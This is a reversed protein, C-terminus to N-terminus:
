RRAGAQRLRRAIEIHGGAMANYLPTRGLLPEAFNVDAGAAILLDVLELSGRGIAFDLPTQDGNDRQNPNAGADLLLRVTETNGIAAAGLLPTWQTAPASANVEAGASLLLAVVEANRSRSVAAQLPSDGNEDPVNVDAGEALLERVRAADGWRAALHLTAYPRPPPERGPPPEPPLTGEEVHWPGELVPDPRATVDLLVRFGIAESRGEGSHWYGWYDQRPRFQGAADHFSGGQWATGMGGSEVLEAVNGWMGYLREPTRGDQRATVPEPAATECCVRGFDQEEGWPYPRESGYAALVWESATPLRLTGLDSYRQTLRRCFEAAEQVSVLAVPCDERGAPPSNGNWLLSRNRVDRVTDVTSGGERGTEREREREWENLFDVIELTQEDGKERGSATLYARYMANTVETELLYFDPGESGYSAPSVRRFRMDEDALFLSSRDEAWEPPHTPSEVRSAEGTGGAAQGGVRDEQRRTAPSADRGAQPRERSSDGCGIAALVGTAVILERM